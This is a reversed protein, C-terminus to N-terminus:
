WCYYSLWVQPSTLHYNIKTFVAPSLPPMYTVNVHLWQTLLSTSMCSSGCQTWACAKCIHWSWPLTGNNKKQDIKFILIRGPVATNEIWKKKKIVACTAVNCRWACKQFFVALHQQHSDLAAPVCKWSLFSVCVAIMSYSFCCSHEDQM